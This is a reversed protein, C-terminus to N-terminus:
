RRFDPMWAAGDAPDTLALSRVVPCRLPSSISASKLGGMLAHMDSALSAGAAATAAAEASPQIALLTGPKQILDVVYERLSPPLSPPLSPSLSPPLSPCDNFCFRVGCPILRPAFTCPLFLIRCM